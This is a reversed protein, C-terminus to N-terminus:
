NSVPPAASGAPVVSQYPVFLMDDPMMRDLLSVSLVRDGDPDPRVITIANGGGLREMARFEAGGIGVSLRDAVGLQALAGARSLALDALGDQQEKIGSLIEIKREARLSLADQDLRGRASQARSIFAGIELKNADIEIAANRVQLERQLSVLDRSALDRVTAAEEEILATQAEKAALQGNLAKIENDYEAQLITLNKLLGEFTVRREAMIATETAMLSALRDPTVLAATGAPATFPTDDREALLRALNVRSVAEQEDFQTLAQRLRGAELRANADAAEPRVFGGALTIAHLVTMGPKYEFGGPGNVDGAVFVPRYEQIEVTVDPRTLGEITRLRDEIADRAAEATMGGLDLSGLRPLMLRGGPQLRATEVSLDPRDLIHIALVDGAALQYDEARLADPTGALALALAAAAALTPL